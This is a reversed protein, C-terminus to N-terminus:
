PERRQDPASARTRPKTDPGRPRRRKLPPLKRPALRKVVDALWRPVSGKATPSLHRRVTRETTEAAAAIEPASLNKRRVITRLAARTM